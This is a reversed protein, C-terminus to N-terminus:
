KTAYYGKRVQVKLDKKPTKLEIKRFAGDRTKNEPTYVLSYQSRMEEQIQTFIDDLTHKRDVRFLRGGTEESMKKLEGEGNGFYGFRPSSYYISYIIADAKHAATIADERSYSSGMDVGDSIIVIAKRGVEGKLKENAALYVADYLITGKQRSTPVPGPHFGTPSGILRLQELATRLLKASNTSDQLLEADSGFQILFAMDKAKLVSTFFQSAAHKEVEILDEQSGSVDVLLGLTLPLNTERTFHKITQQKGDEYITFDEQVLNPILAGKKDRVSFLLNVLDVDVRLVEEEQQADKPQVDKPQAGKQQAIGIGVALILAGAGLLVMKRMFKTICGSNFTNWAAGGFNEV